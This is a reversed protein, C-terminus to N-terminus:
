SVPLLLQKHGSLLFHGSPKRSNLDPEGYVTEATTVNILDPTGISIGGQM